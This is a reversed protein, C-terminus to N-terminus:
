IHKYILNAKNLIYPYICDTTVDANGTMHHDRDATTKERRTRKNRRNRTNIRAAVGRTATTETRTVVQENMQVIGSRRRELVETKSTSTSNKRKRTSAIKEIV